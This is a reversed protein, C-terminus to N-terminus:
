AEDILNLLDIINDYTLTIYNLRSTDVHICGDGHFSLPVEDGEEDLLKAVKCGHENLYSEGWKFEDEHLKILRKEKEEPTTIKSIM